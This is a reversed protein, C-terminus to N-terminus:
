ETLGDTRRWREIRDFAANIRASKETAKKMNGAHGAHRDPHHLKLLKKYAAKCAEGSAGLPLGLEEFDPRLSEPAQGGGGSTERYAGGSKNGAAGRYAGASADTDDRFSAGTKGRNLFDDLEEFAAEMDPDSHRGGPYGANGGSHKGFVHGNEDNLYSKLVDGLRDLIGM